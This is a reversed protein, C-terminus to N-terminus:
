RVCRFMVYVLQVSDPYCPLYALLVDGLEPVTHIYAAKRRRPGTHIQYAPRIMRCKKIHSYMFALVPLDATHEFGDALMHFLQRTKFEGSEAQPM